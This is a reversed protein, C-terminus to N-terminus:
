PQFWAPIKHKVPRGRRRLAENEHHMAEYDALQPGSAQKRAEALEDYKLEGYSYIKEPMRYSSAHEVIVDVGMGRAVGIWYLTDRHIHLHEVNGTMGIGNLVIRKYGRMLAFAIMYGVQCLFMRCPEPTGKWNELVPFAAQLEAVPFIRAGRVDAFLRTALVPDTAIAPDMLWIPRTGDQAVFWRWTEPRREPIGPFRGATTLPHIDFWETWDTLRAGWFKTNARTVGWLDCEPRGERPSEASARKGHIIVTKPPRKPM